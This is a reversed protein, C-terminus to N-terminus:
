VSLVIRARLTPCTKSLAVFSTMMSFIVQWVTVFFLFFFLHFLGHFSLETGSVVRFHLPILLVVFCIAEVRAVAVPQWCAM